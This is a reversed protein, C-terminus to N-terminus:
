PEYESKSEVSPLSFQFVAGRPVNQTVGLSGDHAEIISRCIALGMGIGNTKTTYFADFVEAEVDPPM